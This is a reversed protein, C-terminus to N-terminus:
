PRRCGPRAALHYVGISAVRADGGPLPAAAPMADVAVDATGEPGADICIRVPTPAVGVFRLESGIRVARPVGHSVADFTVEIPGRRESVVALRAASGLWAFSSGDPGAESPYAGRAVAIAVKGPPRRVRYVAEGDFRGVLSFGRGSPEPAAPNVM